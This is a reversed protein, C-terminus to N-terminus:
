RGDRRVAIQFGLKELIARSGALRPSLEVCRNFFERRIRYEARLAAFYSGHEGDAVAFVKRLMHDDLGIDYAQRVAFGVVGKEETISSPVVIRSDIEPHASSPVDPEASVGLHRCVEGYVMRLANLKGDLSYGAIHATGLTVNRLLSLDIGPEGEWVDLIANSLHKSALMARLANTEVVAGRATNILVSGQKMRSLRSENFLHYTADLGSRTLPVHLTLVDAGMLEDLPLFSSDGTKRALPPDNLIVNMGLAKAVRVVRSGVNGVGVVGITKGNLAEGTRESWVLLAAAIYEAVSNANSGPASAFGIGNAALYELDV